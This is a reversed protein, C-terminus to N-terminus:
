PLPRAILHRGDSGIIQATVIEGAPAPAEFRVPSFDEAHGSADTE